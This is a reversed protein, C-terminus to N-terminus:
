NSRPLSQIVVEYKLPLVTNINLMNFCFVIQKFLILVVKCKTLIFPSPSSALKTMTMFITTLVIMTMMVMVSDIIIDRQRSLRRGALAVRWLFTRCVAQVVADHQRLILHVLQQTILPVGHVSTAPPRRCVDVEAPPRDHWDRPLEVAFM